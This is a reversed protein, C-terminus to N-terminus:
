VTNIFPPNSTAIPAANGVLNVGPATKSTPTTAQQATAARRMEELSARFLLFYQCFFILTLNMLFCSSNKKSFSPMSQFLILPSSHRILVTVIKVPILFRYFDSILENEKKSAILFGLDIRYSEM